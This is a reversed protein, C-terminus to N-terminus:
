FPSNYNLFKLYLKPIYVNVHWIKFDLTNLTNCNPHKTDEDLQLKLGFM